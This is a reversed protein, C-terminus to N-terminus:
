FVPMRVGFSEAIFKRFLHGFWALAVALKSTRLFCVMLM